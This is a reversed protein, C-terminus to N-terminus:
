GHFSTDLLTQETRRDDGTKGSYAHHRRRRGDVGLRLVLALFLGGGTRLRRRHFLHDDHARADPPVGVIRRRRNLHHRTFFRGQRAEVGRGFHQLAGADRPARVLDVIGIAAIS